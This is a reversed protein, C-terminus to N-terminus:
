IQSTNDGQLKAFYIGSSQAVGRDDLGNWYAYYTGPSFTREMLTAVEQGLINYVKLSLQQSVTNEFSLRTEANFPNPHNQFLTFTEPLEADQSAGTAGTISTSVDFRYVFVSDVARGVLNLTTPFAYTEFFTVDRLERDLYVTDVVEGQRYDLFVVRDLGQRGVIVQKDAYVHEFSIGAIERYWLETVAEGELSYCAMHPVRESRSQTFDWADGYYIMEDYSSTPDFDGVFLAYTFGGESTQKALNRSTSDQVSYATWEVRGDVPEAGLDSFNYRYIYNKYAAFEPNSDGSMNGVRVGTVNNRLLETKLNISYLLSTSVIESGGGMMPTYNNYRLSTELWVGSVFGLSDHAFFMDQYEVGELRGEGAFCEAALVTTSLGGDSLSILGIQPAQGQSNLLVYVHLEDRGQGYYHITKIPIGSVPVAIMSDRAFEDIIVSMAQRDCYIFGSLQNDRDLLPDFHGFNGAGDLRESYVVEYPEAGVVSFSLLTLFFTTLVRAM